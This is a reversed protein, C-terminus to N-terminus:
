NVQVSLMGSRIDENATQNTAEKVHTENMNARLNLCVDQQIKIAADVVERSTVFGVSSFRMKSPISSSYISASCENHVSVYTKTLGFSCHQAQEFLTMALFRM